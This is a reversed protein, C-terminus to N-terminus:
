EEGFVWVCLAFLLFFTTSNTLGYRPCFVDYSWPRNGLSITWLVGRPHIWLIVMLRSPSPPFFNPLFVCISFLQSPIARLCAISQLILLSALLPAFAHCCKFFQDHRRERSLLNKNASEATKSQKQSRWIPFHYSSSFQPLCANNSQGWGHM